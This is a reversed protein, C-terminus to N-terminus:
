TCTLELCQLISLLFCTGVDSGCMLRQWLRPRERMHRVISNSHLAVTCAHEVNSLWRVAKAPMIVNARSANAAASDKAVGSACSWVECCMSTARDRRYLSGADGPSAFWAHSHPPPSDWARNAQNSLHSSLGKVVSSCLHKARILHGVWSIAM